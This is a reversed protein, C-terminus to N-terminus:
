ARGSFITRLFSFRFVCAVAAIALLLTLPLLRVFIYTASFGRERAQPQDVHLLGLFYQRPRDEATAPRNRPVPSTSPNPATNFLVSVESLRGGSGSQTRNALLVTAREAVTQFYTQRESGGVAAPYWGVSFSGCATIVALLACLVAAQGLGLAIFVRAPTILLIRSLRRM